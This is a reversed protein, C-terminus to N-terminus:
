YSVTLSWGCVACVSTCSSHYLYKCNQCMMMPLSDCSCPRQPISETVSFLLGERKDGEKSSLSHSDSEPIESSQVNASVARATDMNGIEFQEPQHDLDLVAFHDHYVPNAQNVVHRALYRKPPQSQSRRRQAEGGRGHKLPTLPDNAKQLTAIIEKYPIHSPVFSLYDLRLGNPTLLEPLRTALTPSRQVAEAMGSGSVLYPHHITRPSAPQRRKTVSAGAASHQLPRKVPTILGNCNPISLSTNKPRGRTPLSSTISAHKPRGRQPLSSMRNSELRSMRGVKGAPAVRVPGGNLKETCELNPSGLPDDQLCDQNTAEEEKRTLEQVVSSVIRLLKEEAEGASVEHYKPVHCPEPPFVLSFSPVLFPM